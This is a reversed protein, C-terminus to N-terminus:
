APPSVNAHELRSHIKITMEDGIISSRIHVDQEINCSASVVSDVVESQWGIKSGEMVISDRITANRDVFVGEYICAGSVLTGQSIYAGEGIYCPGVIRVGPEIVATPALIVPGSAEVGPVKVERGERRVVELNARQLDQPRGIDMWLGDVKKGYIPKDKSLLGPFVDGSFDCAGNSPIFDLVDPELIYIGANILHSFVEEPRPKEHFRVIRNERDTEVIGFQTPDDVETLAMTALSRVGRHYTYLGKIDVDALVDGSAVVFTDDIFEAVRKVAGATGAPSAEFSYLISAKYDRGDGIRKIVRDSMYSTTVVIQHFGASALSRLVYDICPRGAVPLLPKPRRETLPKLRTGYGGALIIAKM